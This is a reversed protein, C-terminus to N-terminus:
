HSWSIWCLSCMLVHVWNLVSATAKLTNLLFITRLIKPGTRASSSKWMRNLLSSYSSRLSVYVNHLMNIFLPKAPEAIDNMHLLMSRRSSYKIRVDTCIAVKYGNPPGFRTLGTMSWQLWGAYARLFCLCMSPHAADLWFRIINNNHGISYTLLYSCMLFSGLFAMLNSLNNAIIIISNLFRRSICGSRANELEDKVHKM